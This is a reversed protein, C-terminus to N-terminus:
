RRHHCFCISGVNYEAMKALIGQESWRHCRTLGPDSGRKMMAREWGRSLGRWCLPTNHTTNQAAGLAGDMGEREREKWQREGSPYSQGKVPRVAELGKLEEPLQWPQQQEWM